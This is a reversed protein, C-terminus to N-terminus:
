RGGGHKARPVEMPVSPVPRQGEILLNVGWARRGEGEGPLDRASTGAARDSEDSCRKARPTKSIM